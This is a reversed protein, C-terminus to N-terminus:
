SGAFAILRRQSLNSLALRGDISTQNTSLTALQTSEGHEVMTYYILVERIAPPNHIPPWTLPSGGKKLVPVFRGRAIQGRDIVVIVVRSLLSLLGGIVVIVVRMVVIVVRMVVTIVVIVVRMVVIVVFCGSQKTTTIQCYIPISLLLFVGPVEYLRFFVTPQRTAELNATLTRIEVNRPPPIQRNPGGMVDRIHRGKRADIYSEVKVETTVM